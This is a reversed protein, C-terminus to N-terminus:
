NVKEGDKAPFLDAMAKESDIVRMVSPQPIWTSEVGLQVRRLIGVLEEESVGFSSFNKGDILILPYSDHEFEARELKDAADRLRKVLNARYEIFETKTM